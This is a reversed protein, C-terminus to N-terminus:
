ASPDTGDYRRSTGVSVLLVSLHLSHPVMFEGVSHYQSRHPPSSAAIYVAEYALLGGLRRLDSRIARIKRAELKSTARREARALPHERSPRFRPRGLTSTLAVCRKSVM